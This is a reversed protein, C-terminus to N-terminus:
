PRFYASVPHGGLSVDNCNLCEFYGTSDEEDSVEYTQASGLVDLDEGRLDAEFCDGCLYGTIEDLSQQHGGLEEPLPRIEHIVRDSRTAGLDASVEIIVQSGPSQRLEQAVGDPFRSLPVSITKWVDWAHVSVEASGRDGLVAIAPVKWTNQTNM